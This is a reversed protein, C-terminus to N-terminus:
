KCKKIGGSDKFARRGKSPSEIEIDLGTRKSRPPKKPAEPCKHNLKDLKWDILKGIYTDFAFLFIEGAYIAEDESGNVEVEVEQSNM